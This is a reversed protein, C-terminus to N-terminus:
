QKSDKSGKKVINRFDMLYFMGVFRLLSSLFIQCAFDWVTDCRGMGGTVTNLM